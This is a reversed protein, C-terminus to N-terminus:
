VGFLEEANRKAACYIEEADCGRLAAIRQATHTIMASDCRKGRLPVPACYPADTELLLRNLPVASAVAAPKKANQFTVIGGLGIYLGLALAEQLTDLSGTFCHLEGKPKYQRLLAMTDQTADRMHVVVPMDLEVALQLQQAFLEKQKERPSFDYHYDLGIEGVAVCRPHALYSRLKPAFTSWNCAEANHPHVGCAAYIYSYQEALVLSAQCSKESDACNIVGCVGQAPLTELVTARDKAFTKDDYHAHSDFIYPKM